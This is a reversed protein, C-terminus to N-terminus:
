NQPISLIEKAVDLDQKKKFLLYLSQEVNKKNEEKQSMWVAWEICEAAGPKKEIRNELYIKQIEQIRDNLWSEDKKYTNLDINLDQLKQLIIEKLKQESIEIHFFLCRRLFADPLNKENNSTILILINKLKDQDESDRFSITEDIENISFEFNDLENLLDNPFDRPAKDIEDILVLNKSNLKYVDDVNQKQFSNMLITKWKDKKFIPHNLGKALVIAKGLAQLRIFDEAPKATEKDKSIQTDRFHEIADYSYLLDKYVSTSKTNFQFVDQFGKDNQFIYSHAMQTKGTGPKGSLLLPKNMEMAMDIVDQQDKSLKYIKTIM